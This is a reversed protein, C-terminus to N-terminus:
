NFVHEIAPFESNKVASVYDVVAQEISGAAAIFNKSFKPRKGLSIDIIDYLVLIQGDCDVGAGIGIVPIELAQSIKSTLDAPVCELLM